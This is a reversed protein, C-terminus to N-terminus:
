EDGDSVEGSDVARCLKGVAVAIAESQRCVEGTTSWGGRTVVYVWERDRLGRDRYTTIVAGAVGHCHVTVGDSDTERSLRHPVGCVAGNFTGPGHVPARRRGTVLEASMM